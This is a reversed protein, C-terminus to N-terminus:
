PAGMFRGTRHTRAAAARTQTVAAEGSGASAREIVLATDRRWGFSNACARIKQDNPPWDCRNIVRDRGRPFDEIFYILGFDPARSSHCSFSDLLIVFRDPRQVNLM